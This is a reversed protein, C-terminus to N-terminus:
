PSGDHGVYLQTCILASLRVGDLWRGQTTGSGVEDHYFSITGDSDTRGNRSAVALLRYHPHWEAASHILSDSAAPFSQIQHEFYVAM